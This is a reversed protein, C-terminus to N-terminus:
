PFPREPTGDLFYFGNDKWEKLILSEEIVGALKCHDSYDVGKIRFFVELGSVDNILQDFEGTEAVTGDNPSV